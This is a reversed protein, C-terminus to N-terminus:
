HFSSSAVISESITRILAGISRISVDRYIYESSLIELSKMTVNIGYQFSMQVIDKIESEKLFIQLESTKNRISSLYNDTKIDKLAEARLNLNMSFSIKNKIEKLSFINKIADTRKRIFSRYNTYHPLFRYIDSYSLSSDIKSRDTDVPISDEKILLRLTIRIANVDQIDIIENFSEKTLYLYGTGGKKSTLHYKSYEKIIVNFSGKGSNSFLILGLQVLKENNNRVTNISCGIYEAVDKESINKVLGNSDVCYFHYFLFQKIQTKSLRSSQYKDLKFYNTENLYTVTRKEEIAKSCFDECKFVGEKYAQPNDKKATFIPCGTRICVSENITKKTEVTKYNEQVGSLLVLMSKGIKAFDRVFMSM